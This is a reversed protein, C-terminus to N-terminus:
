PSRGAQYKLDVWKTAPTGYRFTEWIMPLYDDELPLGVIHTVSVREWLARRDM